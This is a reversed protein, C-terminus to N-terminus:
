GHGMASGLGVWLSGLRQRGGDVVGIEEGLKAEAKAGLLVEPTHHTGETEWPGTHRQGRTVRGDPMGEIEGRAVMLGRAEWAVGVGRHAGTPFNGEGLAHGLPFGATGGWGALRLRLRFRLLLGLGLRVDHLCRRPGHHHQQWLGLRLQGHCVLVVKVEIPLKVLRVDGRSPLEVVGLEVVVEVGVGTYTPLGRSM